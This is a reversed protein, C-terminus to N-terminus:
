NTLQHNPGLWGSPIMDPSFSVKMFLYITSLVLLASILGSSCLSFVSLKRSFKHFSICNFPGYLSFYVCFCFLLFHALKTPKHCVYVVVNGGRPPLGSPVGDAFVTSLIIHLLGVEALKQSSLFLFSSRKGYHGRHNGIPFQTLRKFDIEAIGEGRKIRRSEVFWFMEKWEKLYNWFPQIHGPDFWVLRLM